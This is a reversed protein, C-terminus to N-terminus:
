GAVIRLALYPVVNFVFIFVKLFSMGVYQMLDFQERRVKVFKTQVAYVWEHALAIWLFWYLLIGYNIIACWGLVARLIEISM